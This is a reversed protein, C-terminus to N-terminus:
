RRARFFDKLTCARRPDWLNSAFPESKLLLGKRMNARWSEM